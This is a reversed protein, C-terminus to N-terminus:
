VRPEVGIMGVTQALVQAPQLRDERGHERAARALVGRDSHHNIETAQRLPRAHRLSLLRGELAGELPDVGPVRVGEHRMTM